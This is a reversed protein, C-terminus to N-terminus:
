LKRRLEDTELEVEDEEVEVGKFIGTWDLGTWDKASPWDM